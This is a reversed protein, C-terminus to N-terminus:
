DIFTFVNDICLPAHVFLTCPAGKEQDDMMDGLMTAARPAAYLTRGRKAPAGNASSGTTSPGLIPGAVFHGACAAALSV